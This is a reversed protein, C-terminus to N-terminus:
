EIGLMTILDVPNAGEWFAAADTYAADVQSTIPLNISDKLTEILRQKTYPHGQRNRVEVLGDTYVFLKDDPRLRYEAQDYPESVGSGIMPGRSVADGPM